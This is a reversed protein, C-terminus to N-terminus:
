SWSVAGREEGSSGELVWRAMGENRVSSNQELDKRELERPAQLVMRPRAGLPTNWGLPIGHHFLETWSSASVMSRQSHRIHRLARQRGCGWLGLEWLSLELDWPLQELWRDLNGTEVGFRHWPFSAACPHSTRGPSIGDGGVLAGPSSCCELPM